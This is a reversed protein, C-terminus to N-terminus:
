QGAAPAHGLSGMVDHVYCWDWTDGRRLGALHQCSSGM